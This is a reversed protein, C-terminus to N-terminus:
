VRGAGHQALELVESWLDLSVGFVHRDSAPWVLWCGAELWHELQGPGWGAHGEFVRFPRDPRRFLRELNRRKASYYLGPGIEVEALAEDAHVAILPSSIPGGLFIHQYCECEKRGKWVQKIPRNTPRNLVLGLAQEASHQIVLIVAKAFEPDCEQSPAILLQGALSTM